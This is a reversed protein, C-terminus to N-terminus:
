VGRPGFAPNVVRSACYARYLRNYEGVTIALEGVIRTRPWRSRLLTNGYHMVEMIDGKTDTVLYVRRDAGAKTPATHLLWTYTQKAM